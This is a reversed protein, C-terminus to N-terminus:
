LLTIWIRSKFKGRPRLEGRNSLDFNIINRAEGSSLDRPNKVNNIGKSFDNINLYSKPM